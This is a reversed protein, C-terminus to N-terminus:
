RARLLYWALWVGGAAAFELALAMAVGRAGAMGGSTEVYLEGARSIFGRERRLAPRDENGAGPFNFLGARGAGARSNTFVNTAM